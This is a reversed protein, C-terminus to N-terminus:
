RVEGFDVPYAPFDFNEPWTGGFGTIPRTEERAWAMFHVLSRIAQFAARRLNFRSTGWGNLYELRAPPDLATFRRLRGGLFTLHEILGLVAKVDSLIPEGMLALERDLEDAVSAPDVPVGPLLAEAAARAIAHEKATLAQLGRQPPYSSGGRPLWGVVALAAGGGAVDRLFGRRDQGRAAGAPRAVPWGAAAQREAHAEGEM